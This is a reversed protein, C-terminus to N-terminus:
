EEKRVHRRTAVLGGGLHVEPIADPDTYRYYGDLFTLLNGACDKLDAFQIQRGLRQEFCPLCLVHKHDVGSVQQWLEDRVMFMDRNEKCDKCYTM